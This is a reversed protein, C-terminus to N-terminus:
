QDLGRAVDIQLCIEAGPSSGNWFQFAVDAYGDIDVGVIEESLPRKAATLHPMNAM